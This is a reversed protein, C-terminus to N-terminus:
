KVVDGYEPHEGFWKVAYSCTLIAKKNDHRLTDALEKTIKGALGQGRGAPDVVTHQIDVVRDEVEPFNIWAVRRGEDDLYYVIDKEFVTKM